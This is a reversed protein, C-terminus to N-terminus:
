VIANYRAAKLKAIYEDFDDGTEPDEWDVWEGREYRWLGGANSYDGKIRQEFQFDDYAALVSLLLAAQTGDAVPWEFPKGPIQSIWWVRLDGERPIPFDRAFNRYIEGAM